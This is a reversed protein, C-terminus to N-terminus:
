SREVLMFLGTTNNLIRQSNKYSFESITLLLRFIMKKVLATASVMGTLAGSLLIQSMPM